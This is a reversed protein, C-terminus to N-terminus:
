EHIEGRPLSFLGSQKVHFMTNRSFLLVGSTHEGPTDRISFIYLFTDFHL